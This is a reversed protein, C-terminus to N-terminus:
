MREAKNAKFKILVISRTLSLFPLSAHNILKFLVFHPVFCFVFLYLSVFSFTYHAHTENLKLRVTSESRKMVNTQILILHFVSGM